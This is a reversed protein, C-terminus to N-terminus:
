YKSGDGGLVFADVREGFGDCLEARMEFGAAFAFFFMGLVPAVVQEFEEFRTEDFANEVGCPPFGRQILKSGVDCLAALIREGRDVFNEALATQSFLVMRICMPFMSTWCM